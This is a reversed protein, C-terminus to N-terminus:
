SCSAGGKREDTDTLATLVEDFEPWPWGQLRAQERTLRIVIGCACSKRHRPELSAITQATIQSELWPFRRFLELTILCDVAMRAYYTELAQNDAPHTHSRDRRCPSAAKGTTRNTQM